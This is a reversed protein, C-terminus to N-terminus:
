VYKLLWETAMFIADPESDDKAKFWDSTFDLERYRKFKDEHNKEYWEVRAYGFTHKVTSSILCNHKVAFKKCKYALNHRDIYGDVKGTQTNWSFKITDEKISIDIPLTDMNLVRKLVKGSIM